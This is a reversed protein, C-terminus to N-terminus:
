VVAPMIKSDTVMDVEKIAMTSVSSSVLLLAAWHEHTTTECLTPCSQTVSSFQLVIVADILDSGLFAM